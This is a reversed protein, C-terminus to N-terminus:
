FQWCNYRFPQVEPAGDMEKERKCFAIYQAHIREIEEGEMQPVVRSAETLFHMEDRGMARGKRTHMDYAYDPVEPKQGHEWGKIIQNKINDTTREKKCRCLARIAHMFFIPQDGDTYPFEKSIRYLTLVRGSIDPDGFGIDEVSIVLLRRWLKELFQPSTVYMEYAAALANDEMGRRISKQLMSVLEDGPIGNRSQINAWPDYSMFIEKGSM